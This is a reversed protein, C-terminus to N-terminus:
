KRVKVRKVLSTHLILFDKQVFVEEFILFDSRKKKINLNNSISLMMVTVRRNKKM